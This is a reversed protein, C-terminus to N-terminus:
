KIYYEWQQRQFHSCRFHFSSMSATMWICSFGSRLPNQTPHLEGKMRSAPCRVNRKASPALLTQRTPSFGVHETGANHPQSPRHDYRSRGDHMLDTTATREDVCSREAEEDHWKPM